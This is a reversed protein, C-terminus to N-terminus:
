KSEKKAKPARKERSANENMKKEFEIQKPLAKELEKAIYEPKLTEDYIEIKAGDKLGAMFKRVTKTRERRELMKKLDAKVESLPQVGKAAKDRVYIIHTGFQSEVLASVTGVKQSFAADGFEKVVSDRTIFGLDGGKQGSGLDTSYEQALKAFDKPNNAAKQRVEKALQKNKEVQEQAKKDIDVSSMQGDKDAEVIAKKVNNINTDFLIHSALVREPMEFSSKNNKYFKEIDANTIKKSSLSEVLKDMKVESAMDSNLREETINNRKLIAEFREKSGIQQIVSEKKAKIEEESATIKRKEFEQNMLERTILDNIFKDKIALSIYSNESKVERPANKLQSNKIKKYDANFEARTIEKDNIKMVVDSNKACGCFIITTSLLTLALKTFKM